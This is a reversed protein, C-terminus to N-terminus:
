HAMMSHIEQRACPLTSNAIYHLGATREPGDFDSSFVDISEFLGAYSMHNFISFAGYIASKTGAADVAQGRGENVFRDFARRAVENQVIEGAFWKMLNSGESGELM